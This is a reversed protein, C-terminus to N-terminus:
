RSVVLQNQGDDEMLLVVALSAISGEPFCKSYELPLHEDEIMQYRYGHLLLAAAVAPGSFRDEIETWGKERWRQIAGGQEVSLERM